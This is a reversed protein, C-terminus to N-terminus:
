RSVGLSWWTSRAVQCLWEAFQKTTQSRGAKTLDGFTVATTRMEFPIPPLQHRPLGAILLWTAKRTPFQFWRQEIYLTYLFPDEPENPMPLQMETFLLSGAPQELVGGNAIVTRVAFRGLEMEAERDPPKAQTRFHKSWTRCPPHAIVPERGHFTRADRAEDYVLVQPLHRYISRGSACLVAVPQLKTNPM